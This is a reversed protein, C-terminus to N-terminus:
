AAVGVPTVRHFTSHIVSSVRVKPQGELFKDMAKLVAPYANTNYTEAQEKSDWLSIATVYTDDGALVIEDRFGAQKRLIPLVENEFTQTFDNLTNPKLRISVNRAFM